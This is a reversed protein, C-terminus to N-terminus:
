IYSTRSIEYLKTGNKQFKINGGNVTPAWTGATFMYSTNPVFTTNNDSIIMSINQTGFSIIDTISSTTSSSIYFEDCCFKSLTYSAGINNLTTVTSGDFRNGSILTDNPVIGLRAYHTTAETVNNNKICIGSVTPTAISGTVGVSTYLQVTATSLSVGIDSKHISNNCIDVGVVEGIVAKNPQTTGGVLYDYGVCSFAVDIGVAKGGVSKSDLEGVYNNNIKVDKVSYVFYPAIGGTPTVTILAPNCLVYIGRVNSEIGTGLKTKTSIKNNDVIVASPNNLMIAVVDSDAIGFLGDIVNDCIVNGIVSVAPINDLLVGSGDVNPVIPAITVIGENFGRITNSSINMGSNFTAIGTYKMTSNQRTDLALINHSVINVDNTANEAVSNTLIDNLDNPSGKTMICAQNGGADVLTNNTIVSYSTKTYIGYQDTNTADGYVNKITNGIIRVRPGFATIGSVHRKDVVVGTNTINKITNNSIVATCNPNVTVAGISIGDKQGLYGAGVGDILNNDIFADYILNSDLRIGASNFNTYAGINKVVNNTFRLVNVGGNAPTTYDSVPSTKIDTFYCNDFDLTGYPNTNTLLSCVSTFGSFGIDKIEFGGAGNLKFLYKDIVNTVSSQILTTYKGHGRIKVNVNTTFIPATISTALYTGPGFILETGLAVTTQIATVIKTSQDVGNPLIGFWAAHIGGSYVRKWRKSGSVIITAGNDTSTTDSSDYVFMGGIGTTDSIYIQTSLGNYNRLSDYTKLVQINDYDKPSNGIFKM